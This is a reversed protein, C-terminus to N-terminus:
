NEGRWLGYVGLLVRIRRDENPPVVVSLQDVYLFPMGAEIDYLLQQLSSQQIEFNAIAKLAGDNPQRGFPEIETSVVSGGAQTIAGTVRQLLAASALTRTQGELFSSGPPRLESLGDTAASSIQAHKGLRDLTELAANRADYREIGDVLAFVSSVGLVLVVAVYSM